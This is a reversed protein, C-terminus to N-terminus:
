SSRNASRAPATLGLRRLWRYVSARSRGTHQAVASVNGGHRALLEALEAAESRPVPTASHEESTARREALRAAIEPRVARVHELEIRGSPGVLGKQARILSKLERVNYPWDWLLLAELADASFRWTAGQEGAIASAIEAIRRRLGRLPELHLVVGAVRAYLDSRFRGESVAREPDGNTAALVRVDVSTEHEAGVARIRGDELVRLLAPQLELPLECLEDLFLTGGNAAAFLGARAANAGSFAGRVHGFLESALLERPLAGCNIPVFPGRGSLAHLRRAVRDKGTGTEGTILVPVGSRAAHTENAAPKDDIRHVVFLSDGARITAGPCLVARKVRRGDLFTGNRSGHDEIRYGRSRADWAIRFHDRSLKVDQVAFRAIGPSRGVLVPTDLSLVVRAPAGEDLNVASLVLDPRAVAASVVGGDATTQEDIYSM